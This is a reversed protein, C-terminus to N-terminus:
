QLMFIDIISHGPKEDQFKVLIDYFGTKNCVFNVSEFYKENMLNTLILANSDLLEIIARGPLNSQSNMVRFKYSTGKNLKLTMFYENEYANDSVRELEFEIQEVFVEKGEQARINNLAACFIFLYTLIILKRM